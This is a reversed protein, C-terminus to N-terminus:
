TQAFPAELLRGAHERAAAYLVDLVSRGHRALFSAATLVREQPRGEPYLHERARALQAILTEQHRKLAAVLRKEIERTGLLAQNRASEVPKELTKEVRVAEASLSAYGEGIARRLEELARVAGQPLEETLVRSALEGESRALDQPLLGLRELTRDTKAEVLFGSLRPARAPRPAGSGSFVPAAQRLYDLEAPGGVYCVTPLLHAEVAPRLLVNASLREPESAALRELDQLTFDEGGRRTVLRGDDLLRLRDRGARGEVLVLALQQGVEVPAELGLAALRRAERALAGDLAAAQRAAELILPAAAAKLAGHWGRCIVVGYPALLEALAAACAEALSREPLYARRLWELTQGRFESAPLASEVAELSARVEEGVRERYAPRMVDASDRERLVIRRTRGDAAAVDCHNIESFDHDDGAVWFVPVVPARRAAALAESLAAASLGKLVTYLPGTFLGAQQGTTVALVGGALLRERNEGAPGAALLADSAERPYARGSQALIAADLDGELSAAIPTPAFRVSV